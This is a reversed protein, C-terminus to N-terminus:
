DEEEAEITWSDHVDVAVAESDRRNAFGDIDPLSLGNVIMNFAIHEAVMRPTAEGGFIPDDPACGQQIVDEAIKLEFNCTAEVRFIRVVGKSTKKVKKM